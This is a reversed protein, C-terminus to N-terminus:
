RVARSRPASPKVNASGISPGLSGSTALTDGDAISGEFRLPDNSGVLGAVRFSEM